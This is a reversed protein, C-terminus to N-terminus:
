CRHTRQIPREAEALLPDISVDWTRAVRDYSATVIRTGDSSFAASRVLENRATLRCLKQGTVADWIRMTKDAGLLYAVIREDAKLYNSLLPPQGHSPDDILGVLDHQLLPGAPTFRPRNALKAELSPSPM